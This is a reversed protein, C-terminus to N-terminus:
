VRNKGSYRSALKVAQVRNKVELKSYINKLHTGVTNVSVFLIEGIEINSKGKALQTLVDLERKTLPTELYTNLSELNVAQNMLNKSESLLSNVQIQLLDMEKQNLEMKFKTAIEEKERRQKLSKAGLYIITLVSLFVLLLALIVTQDARKEQELGNIKEEQLIAKQNSQELAHIKDKEVIIKEIKSELLSDKLDNSVKLFEYAAKYDGTIFLMEALQSGTNKMNVKHKIEKYIEFGEKFYIIALDYKEQSRYIAGKQCLRLAYFTAYGGKTIDKLSENIYFLAKDYDGICNYQEAINSNCMSVLWPGMERKIVLDLSKKHYELSKACNKQKSYLFAKRHYIKAQIEDNKLGENIFQASDFYQLAIDLKQQNFYLGGM